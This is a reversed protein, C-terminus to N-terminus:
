RSLSLWTTMKLLVRSWGSWRDVAVVAVLVFAAIAVAVAAVM